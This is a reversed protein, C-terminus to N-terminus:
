LARRRIGAVGFLALLAAMLIMAWESLTPIAAAGPGPVVVVTLTAIAPAPNIGNTTQLAGAPLTDVYSGGVAATVSVTLTCSGNAPITRGAPLTVTSGGAVAVPAGVGGCTTAVNPTPAIVVGSPLTDVLPATLTAVAANPNSLTITLTSVGGANITAPSFAKGLAPPAPPAVPVVTLTAIAPALSNGNSTQLAGPPLTNIDAGGAAATVDVTLTCSGNAPITRGAPLTVTSGGAVAVPAGVGGCTTGVNPTPAIVVGSPLTDVLPATLTAVTASPNSLTITLTSVGGANITAPSFAKGLTPPPVLPIVTL